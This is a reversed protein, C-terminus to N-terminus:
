KKHTTVGGTLTWRLAEKKTMDVPIIQDRAIYVTYGGVQYSMPLYVAVMDGTTLGAPADSLDGSTVIGLLNMGNISVIVVQEAANQKDSGALYKMLGNLSEYIDGVLPFKEFFREILSQLQQFILLQLVLGVLFISFVGVLVGMGPIYWSAPLFLDFLGSFLSEFTTILWILVYVTLAIPLIALLGTVFISYFKKM